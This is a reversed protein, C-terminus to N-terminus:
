WVQVDEAAFVKPGLPRTTDLVLDGFWSGYLVWAGQRRPPTAGEREITMNRGPPTKSSEATAGDGGAALRKALSAAAGDTTWTARGSMKMEKGKRRRRRRAEIDQGVLSRPAHLASLENM